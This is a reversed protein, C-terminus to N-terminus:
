LDTDLYSENKHKPTNTFTAWFFHYSEKSAWHLIFHWSIKGWSTLYLHKSSWHGHISRVKVTCMHLLFSSLWNGNWICALASTGVKGIKSPLIGILPRIGSNCRWMCTLGNLLQAAYPLNQCFQTPCTVWYINMATVSNIAVIPDILCNMTCYSIVIESAFQYHKFFDHSFKKKTWLVMCWKQLHVLLYWSNNNPWNM